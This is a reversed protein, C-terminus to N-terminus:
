VNEIGFTAANVSSPTWASSTDPDLEVIETYYGYSTDLANAAGADETGNSTVNLKLSRLGADTKKAVGTIQVAYVDETNATLNSFNYYDKHGATGSSVYTSDSDHSADDVEAYNDGANVPTWDATATDPTVPTLTQVIVPGLVDNNVSGSNNLIYIDDLYWGDQGDTAGGVGFRVVDITTPTGNRTDKVGIVSSDIVHTGNVWLDVTGATDHVYVKFEIYYWTDLVTDGATTEALITGANNKIELKQSPGNYTLYVHRTASNYLGILTGYGSVLKVAVGVAITASAAFAKTIGTSQSFIYAGNGSVRAYSSGISINTGLPLTWGRAEIQSTAIGDWGEIVLMTM